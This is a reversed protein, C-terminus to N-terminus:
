NSNNKIKGKKKANNSQNPPNKMNLQEFSQIQQIPSPQVFNVKTQQKGKPPVGPQPPDPFPYYPNQLPFPGYQNYYTLTGGGSNPNYLPAAPPGLIPTTVLIALSAPTHGGVIHTPPVMSARHSVLPHYYPAGGYLHPFQNAGFTPIHQAYPNFHTM